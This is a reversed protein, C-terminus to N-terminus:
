SIQSILESQSIRQRFTERRKNVLEEWTPRHLARQLETVSEWMRYDFVKRFLSNYAVRLRRREDRDNVHIVEIAYTLISLCHAELLQMMVMENSRGEVRLIANASRYFSKIKEDICCNFRTHSKLTVGLYQWSDVWEIDKGDLQLPTLSHKKGFSMNKSKKANLMIDWAKCYDETALLLKQLGRLSPALLAMDDAYLLISLFVERLYCGIGLAKLIEVLEDM